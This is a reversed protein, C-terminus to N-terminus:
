KMRGIIKRVFDKMGKPMYESAKRKLYFMLPSSYEVNAVFKGDVLCDAYVTRRKEPMPTPRNLNTNQKRLED